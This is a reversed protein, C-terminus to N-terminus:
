ITTLQERGDSAEDLHSAASDAADQLLLPHLELVEHFVLLTLHDLNQIQLQLVLPVMHEPLLPDMHFHCSRTDLGQTHVMQACGLGVLEENVLLLGVGLHDSIFIELVVVFGVVVSPHQPLLLPLTQLSQGLFVFFFIELGVLGLLKWFLVNCTENPLLLVLPVHSEEQVSYQLLALSPDPEPRSASVTSPVWAEPNKSQVPIGLLVSM